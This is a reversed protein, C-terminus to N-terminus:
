KVCAWVVVAIVVALVIALTLVLAFVWTKMRGANVHVVPDHIIAKSQATTFWENLLDLDIDTIHKTDYSNLRIYHKIEDKNDSILKKGHINYREFNEKSMLFYTHPKVYITEGLDNVFWKVYEDAHHENFTTTTLIFIYDGEINKSVLWTHEKRDSELPTLDEPIIYAQIDM